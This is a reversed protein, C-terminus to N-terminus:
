CCIIGLSALLSELYLLSFIGQNRLYTLFAKILFKSNQIRKVFIKRLTKDILKQRKRITPDHAWIMCNPKPAKALLMLLGLRLLFIEEFLSFASRTYIRIILGVKWSTRFIPVHTMFTCSLYSGLFIYFFAAAVANFARYSM